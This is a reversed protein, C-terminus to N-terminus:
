YRGSRRQDNFQAAPRRVVRSTRQPSGERVPARQLAARQVPQNPRAYQRTRQDEYPGPAAQRPAPKPRPRHSGSNSRHSRARSQAQANFNQEGAVSLSGIFLIRTLWVLVAVFIP